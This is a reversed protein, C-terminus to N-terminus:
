ADHLAHCARRVCLLLLRCCQPFCSCALARHVAPQMGYHHLVQPMLVLRGAQARSCRDGGEWGHGQQPGFAERLHGM